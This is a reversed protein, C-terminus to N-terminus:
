SQWVQECIFFDLKSGLIGELNITGVIKSERADRWKDYTM